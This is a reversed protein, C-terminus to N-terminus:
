EEETVDSLREETDASILSKPEKTPPVDTPRVEMGEAEPLKTISEPAVSLSPTQPVAVDDKEQKVIVGHGHTHLGNIEFHLLEEARAQEKTM